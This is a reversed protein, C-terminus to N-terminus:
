MVGTEMASILESDDMDNLYSSVEEVQSGGGSVQL